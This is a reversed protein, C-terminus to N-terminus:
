ARVAVPERESESRAPDPYLRSGPGILMAHGRWIVRRQIMGMLWVGWMGIDKLLLLPLESPRPLAGNIVRILWADSLYKAVLACVALSALLEASVYPIRAGGALLALVLVLLPGPYMLPEGVYLRSHIRFRMQAWRLHRAAFQSLSRRVNITRLVFPSLAVRYGAAEFLQGLVYDEALVDRVATFGGIEDLVSKRFLMSKGVVCPHSVLVEAGCIARAVYCALHLNELRAGLSRGGSGALVSSVLGVRPDELESVIARLYGPEPRVNSDSILMVDYQARASLGSLNSVKPNMGVLPMGAVIRIRVNPFDRRLARAVSLAPDDPDEAGLVLEFEPYDQRALSVLNEYLGEDVGCLPKLVSIPPLYGNKAPRARMRLVSVHTAVTLGLSFITGLLVLLLLGDM